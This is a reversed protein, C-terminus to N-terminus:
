VPPRLKKHFPWGDYATVFPYRQVPLRHKPFNENIYDICARVAGPDSKHIVCRDASFIPHGSPALMPGILHERAAERLMRLIEEGQLRHRRVLVHIHSHLIACAYGDQPNAPGSPLAVTVFPTIHKAPGPTEPRRTVPWQSGAVPYQTRPAPYNQRAGPEPNPFGSCRQPGISLCGHKRSTHRPQSSSSRIANSASAPMKGVM